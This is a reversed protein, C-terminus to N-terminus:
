STAVMRLRLRSGLKILWLGDAVASHMLDRNTIPRGLRKLFAVLACRCVPHSSNEEKPSLFEQWSPSCDEDEKWPRFARDVITLVELPM